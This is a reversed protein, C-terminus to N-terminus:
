NMQESVFKAARAVTRMSYIITAGDGWEVAFGYRGKQEISTPTYTPDKKENAKHVTVISEKQSLGESEVAKLHNSLFEGNKPDRGRLQTSPIRVQKAASDSFFRVVFSARGKEISCSIGEVEFEVGEINILGLNESVKYRSLLLEKSVLFALQEFVQLEDSADEPRAVCLPSGNDNADNTITSIPM